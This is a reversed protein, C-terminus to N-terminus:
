SEDIIELRHVVTLISEVEVPENESSVVPYHVKDCVERESAFKEISYTSFSAVVLGISCVEDSCGEGGYSVEVVM